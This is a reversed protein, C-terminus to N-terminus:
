TKEVLLRNGVIETVRHLGAEPVVGIRHIATWHAGRYQVGATGDPNWAAIELTEGIDLHLNPNAQADPERRRGARKWHWAATAGGGVLAACVLQTTLGAGTHAALAAAVAGTALMLLYFTGTLLEVAIMGGAVLWWLTPESM